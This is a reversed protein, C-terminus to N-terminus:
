GPEETVPIVVLGASDELEMAECTGSSELVLMPDDLSGGVAYGTLERGCAEDIEAENVDIVVVRVPIPETLPVGSPAPEAVTPLLSLGAMSLVFVPAVWRAHWFMRKISQQLSRHHLAAEILALRKTAEARATPDAEHQSRQVLDTVSAATGLLTPGQEDQVWSLDADSGPTTDSVSRGALRNADVEEHALAMATRRPIVLIRGAAVLTLLSSGLALVLALAYIWWTVDFAQGPQASDLQLGGAVFATLAGAAGLVWKLSSRLDAIASENAATATEIEM